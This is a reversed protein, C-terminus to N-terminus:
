NDNNDAYIHRRTFGLKEAESAYAVFAEEKTEFLGILKQKNEISIVARWKKTPEHWSVGKYGSTNCPDMRKNKQNEKNSIERLNEKRNDDKIGNIHDIGQEQFSGYLCLWIIRHAYYRKGFIAGQKYGKLFATFAEKGAWKTNWTKANQEKSNKCSQFWKPDRSRWYLKGTEPIYELFERVIEQTLQM